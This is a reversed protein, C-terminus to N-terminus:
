LRARIPSTDAALEAASVAVPQPAALAPTSLAGDLSVLGQVVPALAAPVSIGEVLLARAGNATNLSSIQTHFATEVQAVTGSFEIWGRGAPLPAIGFGESELWASVSAVDAASNSYSDAFAAPTLWRHYSHSSPNQQDALETALAQQQAAPTSLLLLM